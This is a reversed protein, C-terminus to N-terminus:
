MFKRIQELLQDMDVPKAVHCNMGSELAKKKDDEFANATLAIIPLRSKKPDDLSRIARAAEYGNMIPMQIDMLVVCYYDEEANKLMEVAEAGNQASDVKYGSETLMVNVIDRNIENDEVLLIHGSDEACAKEKEEDKCDIRHQEQENNFTELLVDRLDSLFLPKSCFATVGAARAEAEFDTWDYATVIIIPTEDGVIERIQKVVDLGSLDPLLWDIIYAYYSDGIEHAHKAHLVAEKGHLFWDARMGIQRLMKSVSDCTTFSDDVVMARLDRLKEVEKHHNGDTQLRFTLHVTFETGKGQESSVEITGGMADIINKTIAMGLGTGHIGSATTNREREFPEYIHEIFEESMGVGSDKVFIDYSGYGKPATPQQRITLAVTGGDPTFKIANSLLNLLVQNVHLKDCYIYEDIVDITDMYFNLQKSQMQTQLINRMYRFIDSISCEKEEINLKGSEIKSMDLIDNVLSLMHNSSSLIRRLYNESRERDNLSTQMLTAYGIIANMPTRIDHSMNSLFTTKAREAAEAKKLREELVAREVAQSITTNTHRKTQRLIFIIYAAIAALLIVAIILAYYKIKILMSLVEKEPVSISISWENIGAPRYYMYEWGDTRPTQYKVFGSKLSLMSETYNKWNTEGNTKRDTTDMDAINVLEKHTPYTDLLFDGTRTDIIYTSSVGNRGNYRDTINLAKPLNKLSIRGYLVGVTKGEQVVPISNLLVLSGDEASKVRDSIHRGLESEAKFNFDERGSIDISEGSPTIIVDNPMLLRLDMTQIMPDMISLTNVVAKTDNIDIDSLAMATANLLTDDHDLMSHINEMVEEVSEELHVLAHERVVRQTHFYLVGFLVVILAIVVGTAVLYIMKIVRESKNLRKM